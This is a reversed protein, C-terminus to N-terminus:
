DTKERLISALTMRFGLQLFDTKSMASAQSLYEQKKGALLIIGSLAGWHILGTELCPLGDQFLEEDMGRQILTQIDKNLAEGIQYIEGLITHKTSNNAPLQITDLMSQFYLPYQDYFVVLMECLSMYQSVADTSQNLIETFRKHLLQMGKLVNYHFIEEKSKFYVYLTAKSYQANKAIDDMTTKGIGKELFLQNATESIANRHFEELAAKKPM